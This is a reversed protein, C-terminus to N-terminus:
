VKAYELVRSCDFLLCLARRAHPERAHSELALAIRVSVSRQISKSFLLFVALVVVVVVTKFGM